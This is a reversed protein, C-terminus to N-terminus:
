RIGNAFHILYAVGPVLMVTASSKGGEALWGDWKEMSGDSPKGHQPCEKCGRVNCDVNSGGNKSERRRKAAAVCVKDVGETGEVTASGLQGVEVVESEM